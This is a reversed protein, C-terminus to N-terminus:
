SIVNKYVYYSYIPAERKHAQVLSQRWRSKLSGSHNSHSRPDDLVNRM